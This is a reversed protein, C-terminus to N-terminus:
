PGPTLYTTLMKIRENQAGSTRLLTKNQKKEWFTMTWAEAGTEM